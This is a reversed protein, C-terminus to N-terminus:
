YAKGAVKTRDVPPSGPDARLRSLVNACPRIGGAACEVAAAAVDRVFARDGQGAAVDIARAGADPLESDFFFHRALDAAAPIRRRMFPRWWFYPRLGVPGRDPM